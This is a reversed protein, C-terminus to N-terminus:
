GLMPKSNLLEIAKPIAETEENLRDKIAQIQQEMAKVAADCQRCILSVVLQYMKWAIVLEQLKAIRTNFSSMLSDVLPGANKVDMDGIRQINARVRDM